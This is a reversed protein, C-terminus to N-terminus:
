GLRGLPGGKPAPVRRRRKALVQEYEEILRDVHARLTFGSAFADRMARSVTARTPDPLLSRMARAAADADAPRFAPAAPVLGVTELHGGGRCAVVPVGAAMAELVSLGCPEAPASALLMGAGALEDEVNSVWGAFTVSPLRHEAVWAELRHRESGDGVIRMSWGDKWLRSREWARLATDTDKEPELRQLVLVVRSERRWSYRSPPVGNTLVLDPQREIRSAIFSSAAIEHSVAAGILPAILSGIPTSGRRAAFHRTVVVPSRHIPRGMVATAEAFTMHAHCVDCKGFAAISRLAEFPTRGPLCRVAGATADSMRSLSGGVVGVNWGRRQLELATNAVYREVGAFADTVVVHLVRGM